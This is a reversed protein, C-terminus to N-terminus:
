STGTTAFVKGTPIHAKASLASYTGCRIEGDEPHHLVGPLFGGERGRRGVCSSATTRDRKRPSSSATSGDGTSQLRNVTATVSPLTLTLQLRRSRPDTSTEMTGHAHLSNAAETLRESAQTSLATPVRLPVPPEKDESGKGPRLKGDRGASHHSPTAGGGPRCSEELGTAEPCARPGVPGPPLRWCTHSSLGQATSGM